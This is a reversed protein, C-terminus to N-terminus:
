PRVETPTLRQADLVGVDTQKVCRTVNLTTPSASLITRHARRQLEVLLSRPPGFGEVRRRIEDLLATRCARGQRESGPLVHQVDPRPWSEEGVLHRGLDARDARDVADVRALAHERECAATPRRLTDALEPEDGAIGAREREPLFREVGYRL